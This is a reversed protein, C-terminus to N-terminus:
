DMLLFFCAVDSIDHYSRQSFWSSSYYFSTATLCSISSVCQKRSYFNKLEQKNRSLKGFSYNPLFFTISNKSQFLLYNRNHVVFKFSFTNNSCSCSSDTNEEAGFFIEILFRLSSVHTQHLILM